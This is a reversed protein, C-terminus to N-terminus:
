VEGEQSFHTEAHKEAAARLRKQRQARMISELREPDSFARFFGSPVAMEAIIERHEWDCLDCKIVVVIM